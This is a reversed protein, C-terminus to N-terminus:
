RRSEQIAMQLSFLVAKMQNRDRCDLQYVAPAGRLEVNVSKSLLSSQPPGVAAIDKVLIQHTDGIADNIVLRRNTLKCHSPGLRHGTGDYYMVYKLNFDAILEEDDSM